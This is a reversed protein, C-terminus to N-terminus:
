GRPLAGGGMAEPLNGAPLSKGRMCGALASVLYFENHVVVVVHDHRSGQNAELDRWNLVGTFLIAFSMLVSAQLVSNYIRNEM